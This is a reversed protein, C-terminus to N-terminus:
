HCLVPDRFTDLKPNLQASKELVIFVIRGLDSVHTDVPRNAFM